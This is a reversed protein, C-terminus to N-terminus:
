GTVFRSLYPNQRKEDRLTTAPGHGPLVTLRSSWGAIKELSKRMVAMDGGYLDTRGISGQFLTDGTALYEGIELCIGGRTHGPTHHIKAIGNGLTLTDGDQLRQDPQFSIRKGPFMASANKQADELMEVDREHIAIPAGTLAKLDEAGGIHDAHGHTLVIYDLTLEKEKLFALVKDADGGVDVALARKTEPDWFLHCNADLVGLTFTKVRM